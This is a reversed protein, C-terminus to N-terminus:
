WWRGGGAVVWWCGGGFFHSIYFFISDFIFYYIIHPLSCSHALYWLLSIADNMNKLEFLTLINRVMNMCVPKNTCQIEYVSLIVFFLIVYHVSFCWNFKSIYCKGLM